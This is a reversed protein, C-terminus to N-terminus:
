MGLIAKLEEKSGISKTIKKLHFTYPGSVRDVKAFDDKTFIYIGENGMVWLVNQSMPNFAFRTMTKSYYHFLVNVSGDILYCDASKMLKGDDGELTVALLAGKPMGRPCDSNWFGFGDVVFTQLMNNTLVSANGREVANRKKQEALFKDAAAQEAAKRRTLINNYESLKGDFEKVAKEYEKGKLVPVVVVSHKEKGKVLLIRYNVGPKNVSISVDEWVTKYMASTFGKNEDTVEFRTGRYMGLEPFESAEVEINFNYKSEDLKKPTFPKHEEQKTLERRAANLEKESNIYASSNEAASTSDAMAMAMMASAPQASGKDLESLALKGKYAWNHAMSDLYYANFRSLDGQSEMQVKIPSSPNVKLPEGDQFANIEFMGASEFEYTVGASDYQMPIGSLFFDLPDRFERYQLQVEGKVPNGDIDLFSNQPVIIKTAEYMFEGGASAEVEYYSYAITVGPLPPRVFPDDTNWWNTISNSTVLVVVLAVSVFTAGGWGWKMIKTKMFFSNEATIIEQRLAYRNMGEALLKQKEVEERFASDENMKNEFEKRESASLAGTLFKEIRETEELQNRM